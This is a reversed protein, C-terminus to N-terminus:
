AINQVAYRSIGCRLDRIRQQRLIRRSVDDKPEPWCRGFRLCCRLAAPDTKQSVQEGRAVSSHLNRAFGSPWFGMGMGHHLQATDSTLLCVTIRLRSRAATVWALESLLFWWDHETCECPLCQGHTSPPTGNTTIVMGSGAKRGEM